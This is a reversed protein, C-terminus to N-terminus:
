GSWGPAFPDMPRQTSGAQPFIRGFCYKSGRIGGDLCQPYNALDVKDSAAIYDTLDLLQDNSGYYYINNSHMWFTDPMSGGTAAAELATWYDSWGNVQIDIKINPNEAEFEDAM